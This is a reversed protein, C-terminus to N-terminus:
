AAVATNGAQPMVNQAFDGTPPGQPRCADAADLSTVCGGAAVPQRHRRGSRHRAGGGRQGGGNRARRLGLRRVRMNRRGSAGGRCRQSPGGADGGAWADRQGAGPHGAPACPRAKAGPFSDGGGVVRMLPLLGLTRLLLRAAQEPKNTCVALQWGQHILGNLAQPVNPYLRSDIAVHAQYDATFDQAAAPDPQLGRAAFAKGVLAVVGDGVMGAVQPQSFAPLSRARMLRNLAAALDPVTDVLTGDLDLLLTRAM